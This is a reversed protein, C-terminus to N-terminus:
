LKIDLQFGLKNNETPNEAEQYSSPKSYQSDISYKFSLKIRDDLDYKILIYTKIGTGYLISSYIMGPLDAEYEYLRAQYSNTKYYTIRGDIIVPPIKIGLGQYYSFGTYYINEESTYECLDLRSKIILNKNNLYSIEANLYNRKKKGSLALQELSITSHSRYKLTIDLYKMLPSSYCVSFEYGKMTLNDSAGKGPISSYDYYIDFDGMYTKFKLGTLVSTGSASSSSNEIFSFCHTSIICNHARYSTMMRIKNSFLVELSVIGSIGSGRTAIEGLLLTNRLCIKYALSYYDTKGSILQGSKLKLPPMYDSHGYLASLFFLTDNTYSASGGFLFEKGRDQHTIENETRHYGDQLMSSVNGTSDNIIADFFNYSVFTSFGFQVRKIFMGMGRLLNNENVSLNPIINRENKILLATNSPRVGGGHGWMALGQGFEYNFDGLIFLDPHTKNRVALNFSFYDLYSPEGADKETILAFQYDKYNLQLRNYQKGTNGRFKDKLDKNYNGIIRSRFLVNMDEVIPSGEKKYVIPEKPNPIFLFPTIMDILDPDLTKITKLEALSFIRGTKNRYKIIEEAIRYNMLPLNVLMEFSASNIDFPNNKYFEVSNFFESDGEQNSTEEFLRDYKSELFSSDTQPYATEPLLFCLFLLTVIRYEMYKFQIFSKIVTKDM